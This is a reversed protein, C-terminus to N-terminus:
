LHVCVCVCACARVLYVQDIREKLLAWRKKIPAGYLDNPTALNM